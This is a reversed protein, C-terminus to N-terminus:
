REDMSEKQNKNRKDEQSGAPLHQDPIIDHVTEVGLDIDNGSKEINDSNGESVPREQPQEDMTVDSGGLESNEPLVYFMEVDNDETGTMDAGGKIKICNFKIKYIIINLRKFKTKPSM